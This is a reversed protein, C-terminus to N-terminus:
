LMILLSMSAVSWIVDTPIQIDCTSDFLIDARAPFEDDSRWLAIVAPVRPFPMLKIAVDGLKLPDGGFKIGRALFGEIDDEYRRALLDLPLIHTGRSFIQGGKIHVPNILRGSPRIDKAGV